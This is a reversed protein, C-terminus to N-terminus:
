QKGFSIITNLLQRKTSFAEGWRDKPGPGPLFHITGEFPNVQLSNLAVVQKCRCCSSLTVLCPSGWQGVPQLFLVGALPEPFHPPPPFYVGQVQAPAGM